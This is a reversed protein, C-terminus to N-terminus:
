PTPRIGGDAGGRTEGGDAGTTVVCSAPIELPFGSKRESLLLTCQQHGPTRPVRLAITLRVARDKVRTSAWRVVEWVDGDVEVGDIEPLSETYSTVVIRANVVSGAPVPELVLLKPTVKQGIVEGGVPVSVQDQERSTTTFKVAAGFVGPSADGKVTVRYWRGRRGLEEIPEVTVGSPAQFGTVEFPRGLPSVLELERTVTGGPPISGVFIAPPDAEIVRRAQARVALRETAHEPDNTEFAITQAIAGPHMAVRLAVTVTATGGPPIVDTSLKARACGCSTQLNALRLNSGGVNTLTFSASPEAGLAVVGLDAAARDVRLRPEQPRHSGPGVLVSALSCALLGVVGLAAAWARLPRVTITM